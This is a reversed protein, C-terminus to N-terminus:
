YKGCRELTELMAEINEPPVDAQINHITNFVFGGGPALDDIRRKVEERVEEPSGFPLIKQTDVGGGWFTLVDGFEKKLAKTDMNDASVQVPNLIDVGAEMLDPILPKIAGCCHLFVRIHPAKKKIFSFLKKHRPKIYKRYMEPSVLLSNQTGLDDAEIAVLVDKGVKDLAKQWYAAKIEVVRDLIGCALDPELALDMFFQEFGRLRLSMEFIGASVGHMVFAYDEQKKVDSMRGEFGEIRTGDLPDPWAFSRIDSIGLEGAMPHSVMDFYHGGTVPKKWDVGWEDTFVINGDAERYEAKYGSPASPILGRTDVCLEKLVNEHVVALQQVPDLISPCGDLKEWGKYSILKEYAKINIGTMKTSGLDFPIRDPESHNLASKVRQASTMTKEAM